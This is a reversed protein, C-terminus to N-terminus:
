ACPMQRRDESAQDKKDGCIHKPPTPAADTKLLRLEGRGKCVALRARLRYAEALEQHRRRAVECSANKAAAEEQHLRRRYYDIDM